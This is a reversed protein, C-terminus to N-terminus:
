AEARRFYDRRKLERKILQSISYRDDPAFDYQECFTQFTEDEGLKPPYRDFDIAALDVDAPARGNLFLRQRDRNVVFRIVGLAVELRKQQGFRDLNLQGMISVAERQQYPTVDLRSCFSQTIRKKDRAAERAGHNGDSRHRGENMRILRDIDGNSTGIGVRTDGTADYGVTYADPTHDREQQRSPRLDPTDDVVELEAEPDVDGTETGM